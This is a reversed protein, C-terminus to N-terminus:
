TPQFRSLVEEATVVRCGFGPEVVVWDGLSGVQSTKGSKISLRFSTDAGDYFVSVDVGFVLMEDALRRVPAQGDPVAAILVPIPKPEFSYLAGDSWEKLLEEAPLDDDVILVEPQARGPWPGAFGVDAAGVLYRGEWAGAPGDPAPAPEQFNSIGAISPAGSEDAAQEARDALIEMVLDRVKDRSWDPAWPVGIATAYERWDMSSATSSPMKPTTM